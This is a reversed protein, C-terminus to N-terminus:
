FQPPMPPAMPPQGGMPQGQEMAMAEQEAQEAKAVMNEIADKVVMPDSSSVNFKVTKSLEKLIADASVAPPKANPDPIIGYKILREVVIKPEKLEAYELLSELDLAGGRFLELAQQYQSAKNLLMSSGAVVNLDFQTIYTVVKQEGTAPDVTVEESKLSNADFTTFKYDKSHDDNLRVLRPEMYFLTMLDIFWEGLEQIAFEINKLKEKIRITANQTLIDIAAASSAGTSAMGRTIESVGSVEEIAQKTSDIQNFITAPLGEPAMRQIRSNPNVTIIQGARDTIGSEKVGANRDLIWVTNTTKIINEMVIQRMKNMEEQLPKLLEVEGLGWIQKVFYDYVWVFPFKDLGFPTERDDLVVNNAITMVWPRGNEGWYWFEFVDAVGEGKLYDADDRPRLSDDGTVQSNSPVLHGKEPFRKRLKRIPMRTRYILWELEDPRTANLDVFVDFIDVSELGIEGMGNYKETDWFVKMVGTGFILADRVTDRLVRPAMIAHWVHSIAQNVAQAAETDAPTQPKVVIQPSKDLAIPLISEIMAFTYNSVTKPKHSPLDARWQEGKYMKIFQNWKNHFVAKAQKSQEFKQQFQKLKSTEEPNADAIFPKTLM